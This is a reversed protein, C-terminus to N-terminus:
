QGGRREYLEYARARIADAPVEISDPGTSEAGTSETGTSEAGTSEAGTAVGSTTGGPSSAVPPAAIRLYSAILARHAEAIQASLDLLRDITRTTATLTNIPWGWVRPIM